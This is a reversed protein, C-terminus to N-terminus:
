GNKLKALAALKDAVITKIKFTCLKNRMLEVLADIGNKSCVAQDEDIILESLVILQFAAECKEYDDKSKIFENFYSYTIGSINAMERIQQINNFAFLALANTALLQIAKDKNKMMKFIHSYSFNLTDLTVQMNEPCNLCLCALAVASEARIIDQKAHLFLAVIFTIGEHKKIESQAVKYPNLGTRICLRQICRIAALVVFDKESTLVRILPHIGHLDTFQVHISQNANPPQNFLVGLADCAIFYLDDSKMTLFDSLLNIRFKSAMLKRQVPDEGALSWLANSTLVKHRVTISKQLVLLLKQGLGEKVFTKQVYINPKSLKEICMISLEKIDNNNSNIAESLHVSLGDRVFQSQLETSCNSLAMTIRLLSKMFHYNDRVHNYMSIITTVLAPQGPVQINAKTGFELVNSLFNVFSFLLNGDTVKNILKYITQIMNQTLDFATGFIATCIEECNSMKELVKGCLCVLDSDEIMNGSSDIKLFRIMGSLLGSKAFNKCSDYQKIRDIYEIVNLLIIFASILTEKYNLQLVKCMTVILENELLSKMNRSWTEEANKDSIETLRELTRGASGSIEESDVAFLQLVKRWVNIEFDKSGLVYYLLKLDQRMAAIEVIGHGNNNTANINAGNEKLLQIIDLRSGM